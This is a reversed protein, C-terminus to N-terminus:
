YWKKILNESIKGKWKYNFMKQPLLFIIMMGFIIALAIGLTDRGYEFSLEMDNMFVYYTTFYIGAGPVLPFIGAILFITVPVRRNVAFIRSVLTIVIAGGFTALIVSPYVLYVLQYFFWGIAGTFACFIFEKKPTSFLISFSLTALGGAIIQMLM